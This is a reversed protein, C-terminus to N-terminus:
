SKDLAFRIEDTELNSAEVCCVGDVSSVKNAM